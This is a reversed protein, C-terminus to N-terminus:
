SCDHYSLFISLSSIQFKSNSVIEYSINIENEINM